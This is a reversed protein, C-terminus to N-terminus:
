GYVYDEEDFGVPLGTPLDEEKFNHYALFTAYIAGFFGLWAFIITLNPAKGVASVAAVLPVWLVVSLGVLQVELGHSFCGTRSFTGKSAFFNCALLVCSWAFVLVGLILQTICSSPCSRDAAAINSTHGWVVLGCLAVFALASLKKSAVSLHGSRPPPSLIEEAKSKGGHTYAQM